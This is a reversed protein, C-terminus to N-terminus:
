THAYYKCLSIMLYIYKKKMIILTIPQITDGWVCKYTLTRVELVESYPRVQFHPPYKCRYDLQLSTM